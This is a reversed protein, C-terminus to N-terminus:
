FENNLILELCNRPMFSSYPLKSLYVFQRLIEKSATKSNSRIQIKNKSIFLSSNRQNFHIFKLFAIEPLALSFAAVM